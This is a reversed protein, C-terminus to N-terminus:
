AAMMTKQRISESSVKFISPLRSWPERSGKLPSSFLSVLAQMHQIKNTPDLELLSVGSTVAVGQFAPFRSISISCSLWDGSLCTKVLVLTLAHKAQLEKGMVEPPPETQIQKESSQENKHLSM